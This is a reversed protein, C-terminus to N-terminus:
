EVYFLFMQAPTDETELMQLICCYKHLVPYAKINYSQNNLNAKSKPRDLAKWGHGPRMQAQSHRASSWSFCILRVAERRLSCVQWDFLTSTGDTLRLCIAAPSAPVNVRWRPLSCQIAQDSM